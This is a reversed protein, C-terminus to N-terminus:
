QLHYKRLCEVHSYHKCNTLISSSGTEPNMFTTHLAQNSYQVENSPLRNCLEEVLRLPKLYKPTPVIPPGKELKKLFNQM